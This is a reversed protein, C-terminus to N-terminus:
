LLSACFDAPSGPSIGAVRAFPTQHIDMPSREGNISGNMSTHGNTLNSNYYSQLGNEIQKM